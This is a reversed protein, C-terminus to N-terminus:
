RTLMSSTARSSYPSSGSSNVAARLARALSALSAPSRSSAPRTCDSRLGVAPAHSSFWSTRRCPSSTCCTSSRPAWSLAAWPVSPASSSRARSRCRRCSVRATASCARARPRSAPRRTVSWVVASTSSVSRDAITSAAAPAASEVPRNVSVNLAVPRSGTSRDRTTASPAGAASGAAPPLRPTPRGSRPPRPAPGPEDACPRSPRVPRRLRPNLATLRRAFPHLLGLVLSARRGAAARAARPPARPPAAGTARGRRVPRTPLRPAPHRWGRGRGPAPPRSTLPRPPQGGPRPARPAARRAGSCCAPASPCSAPAWTPM